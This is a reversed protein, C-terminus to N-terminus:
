RMFYQYLSVLVFDFLQQRREKKLFSSRQQIELIQDPSNGTMLPPSTRLIHRLFRPRSIYSLGIRKAAWTEWLYTSCLGHSNAPSRTREFLETSVHFLPLPLPGFAKFCFSSIHHKIWLFTLIHGVFELLSMLYSEIFPIIFSKLIDLMSTQM